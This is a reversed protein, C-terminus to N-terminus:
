KLIKKLNRIEQLSTKTYLKKDFLFGYRFLCFGTYHKSNRSHIVEKMIIDTNNLWENSGSKAYEDYSGVKYFALAILLDINNNTILNNWESLVKPFSQTENLFGYYIQPM